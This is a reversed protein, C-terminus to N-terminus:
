GRDVVPLLLRVEAGREVNAFALAGGHLRAAREATVLGIGRHGPKTSARLRILVKPNTSKLGAGYDRVVLTAFGDTGREVGVEPPPTQPGAAETADIANRLLEVVGHALVRADGAVEPWAGDRVVVDKFEGTLIADDVIARLNVRRSEGRELAVITMAAVLMDSLREAEQQITKVSAAAPDSEPVARKLVEAHMALANLPGRLDHLLRDLDEPLRSM